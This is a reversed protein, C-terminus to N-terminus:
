AYGQEEFYLEVNFNM